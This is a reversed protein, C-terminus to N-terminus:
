GGGEGPTAIPMLKSRTLMDATAEREREIDIRSRCVKKPINSGTERIARCVMDSENSVRRTELPVTNDGPAGNSALVSHAQDSAQQKGACANLVLLIAIPVGTRLM